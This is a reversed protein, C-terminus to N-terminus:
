ARYRRIKAAPAPMPPVIFPALISDRWLNLSLQAEDDVKRFVM